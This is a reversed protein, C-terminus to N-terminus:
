LISMFPSIKHELEEWERQPDSGKVIGAAAFLNLINGQILASRIGVALDAGHSSIWGVPAAYWGRAFSEKEKLLELAKDRPIGGVAPTPHLLKTLARDSMGPKLKGLFRNFLHHVTTTTVVRDEIEEDIFDCHPALTSYIFEKVFAFERREKPDLLLESQLLIDEMETRGRPRTAAMIDSQIKDEKRQYLKEPSAGLFASERNWQFLFITANHAKNKIKQLLLFPNVAEKFYLKTQRASVIKELEGKEILELYYSVTEKWQPLSPCDERDLCQLRRWHRDPESFNLAALADFSRGVDDIFHIVLDTKKENQEISVAPLFFFSEPFGEWRKESFSFGGFLRAPPNEPIESFQLVQGACTVVSKSKRDQWYVKPFLTQQELWLLPDIPEVPIRVTQIM